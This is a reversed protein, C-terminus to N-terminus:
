FFSQCSDFYAPTGNTRTDLHYFGYQDMPERLKESVGLISDILRREYPQQLRFRAVQVSQGVITRPVGGALEQTCTVCGVNLGRGLKLIRAYAMSADNRTYVLSVLEDVFLISPGDHLIGDLWTEVEEPEIFVPQWVQVRQKAQPRSPCKWDTQIVGPWGDFDGAIKSDLV